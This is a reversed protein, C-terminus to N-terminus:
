TVIGSSESTGNHSGSVTKWFVMVLVKDGYQVGSVGYLDILLEYARGPRLVEGVYMKMSSYKVEVVGKYVKVGTIEFGETGVPTAVARIYLNGGDLKVSTVSFVLETVKPRQRNLVGMVTAEVGLFIGFLIAILILVAVLQSVARM